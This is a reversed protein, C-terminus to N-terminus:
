AAFEEFGPGGGGPIFLSEDVSTEERELANIRLMRAKAWDVDSLLVQAATAEYDLPNGAYSMLGYRMGDCLDDDVKIVREQLMEGRKTVQDNWRYSQLQKFTEPCRAAVMHFHGSGFWTSCRRIGAIVDNEAPVLEIGMRQFEIITQRQSRDGAILAPVPPQQPNLGHLIETIRQWHELVTAHRAKYEAVQVLGKACAVLFVVAFPHDAGPDMGLIVERDPSVLPWEPIYERVADDDELLLHPGVTAGYVAGAFTVFDAEYEQRFFLPDMMKRHMAILAQQAPEQMKPNVNTPYKCSWFGAMGDAAPKWFDTYTWDYGNPSTTVLAVGNKDALAPMMTHWALQAVERAEDIWAFDLGPGRATNPNELSRFQLRSGNTTLLTLHEASWDAIWDAPIRSLTLPMVVDHIDRYTPACVWGWQKAKRALLKPVAVSGIETKGGRRGAFLSLVNYWPEGTPHVAGLADLFAVQYPNHKLTVAGDLNAWAAAKRARATSV